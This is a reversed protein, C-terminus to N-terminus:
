ALIAKSPQDCVWCYLHFPPVGVTESCKIASKLTRHWREIIGNSQPHYPTTRFHKVGLMRMLEEFIASEFQRGLDTTIRLPVGYNSVWGGVLASAVNQATIDVMPIAAPWRSYRDICTLCYRFGNSTPLPGVIDINIHEFRVDVSAYDSLPSKTHRHVKARQCPICCRVYEAVDKSMSPWVYHNAVLQKSARIGPHSLSHLKRIISQRFNKPVYPRIKGRLVHCYLERTSEPIFLKTLTISEDKDKSLLAQLEEDSQQQIAMDDFNLAGDQVMNIRSLLDAVNNDTGPLHRIDTTYEGIFDLQRARRPSAKESKQKFAYTIPKHDTFIVFERGEIAYKFHHVAQYIATLERDYASYNRQSPTLKKSYFGLPQVQGNVSQQLVAGVADDSADTTLNLKADPAMYNLLTANALEGKCAEFAADSETTWNIVSKDNKRNGPILNQLVRQNKTAKPIFPRYFNIMGLFKRLDKAVKPKAFSRIVDVKEEPPKLGSSSIEHGLFTLVSKGFHCKDFNIALHAQRLRNLVIRLHETHEEESNSAILIDDIYAFTFDLGKLVENIHRQFTQAANRLGFTM